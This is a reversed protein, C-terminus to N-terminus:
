TPSSTSFMMRRRSWAASKSTSRAPRSRTGRQIRAVQRTARVNALVRGGLGVSILQTSTHRTAGHTPRRSAVRSGVCDTTSPRPMTVSSSKCRRRCVNRHGANSTRGLAQATSVGTSRWRPSIILSTRTFEMSACMTTRLRLLTLPHWSALTRQRRTSTLCWIRWETDGVKFLTGPLAHPPPPSPPSPPLPSPLKPLPPPRPRFM